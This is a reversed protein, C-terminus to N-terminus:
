QRGRSWRRLWSGVVVVVAVLVVVGVAAQLVRVAPDPLEFVADILRVLWGVAVAVLLVTKARQETARLQEVSASPM